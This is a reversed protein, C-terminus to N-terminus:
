HAKWRDLKPLMGKALYRRIRGWGKERLADDVIVTMQDLTMDPTIFAGNKYCMSCYKQSPSGDKETGNDKGDLPMSCSQCFQKKSM